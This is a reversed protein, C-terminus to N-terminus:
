EYPWFHIYVDRPAGYRSSYDKRIELLREHKLAKAHGDCFVANILGSPIKDGNPLVIDKERVHRPEPYYFNSWIFGWDFATHDNIAITETPRAVQALSHSPAPRVYSGVRGPGYYGGLGEWMATGFAGTLNAYEPGTSEMPGSPTPLCYTSPAYSYNILIDVKGAQWNTNSYSSSPCVFIGLNKSYPELRKMWSAQYILADKPSVGLVPPFVEDSDQVYMMLAIAMQKVNSLCSTQRAKERAQAFVPFLIAALIAIVAIVVLLEILTFGRRPGHKV